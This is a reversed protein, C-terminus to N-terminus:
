LRLAQRPRKRVARSYVRYVPDPVAWFSSRRTPSTQDSPLTSGASRHVGIEAKAAVMPDGHHTSLTSRQQGQGTSGGIEATLDLNLPGGEPAAFVLTTDLRPPIADLAALAVRSLAVERVSTRSKAGPEIRGEVNKQEVRVPRRARDVHRRELAGWEAPRLGTAAGFAPLERYRPDLEDAIAALEAATFVRV